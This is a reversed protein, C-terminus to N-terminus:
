NSEYLVSCWKVPMPRLTSSGTQWCSVSLILSSKPSSALATKSTRTCLSGLVLLPSSAVRPPPPPTAVSCVSSFGCLVVVQRRTNNKGGTNKTTKKKKRSVVADVSARYSPFIKVNFKGWNLWHLSSARETLACLSCPAILEEERLWVIRSFSHGEAELHM